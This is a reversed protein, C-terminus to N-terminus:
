GCVTQPPILGAITDGCAVFRPTDFASVFEVSM